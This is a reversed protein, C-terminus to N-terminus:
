SRGGSTTAQALLRWVYEPTLPLRNIEVGFEALADCIGNAVAAAPPITGIEGVGRVGFTTMPSPVQTHMLEIPPMDAATPMFYDLMTGNLLQGTDPDYRLEETLAAGFGQALAGHVQGQVVMPNVPTGCDHVMVFREITFDGTEPDVSVIAAASGFAFAAEQPEFHATAELGPEMDAPLGQGTIARTHVDALTAFRGPDSRVYVRRGALELEAPDAVELAHAAIALTKGRLELSAQRLAGAAAIMTRSAFGGTNLPTAGTDGAHVRVADYEIGLVEVCVQAFATESSQGFSSVGTYLDIGGSRNARLIVSEHAGYKSGRGALFRASAYGTREVFSTVGVGVYRGDARPGRGERRREDYGIADCAMQLCRRYDGSDLLGGGPNRWPLQEPELMNQMRLEVPDRGLRRALRDILLERVFNSEPQGYGRYAGIPTKSTLTVRRETSADPVHYPGTFTISTLQASGFPSNYAGLDTRYVDTMAIIRGDATAGIRVDHVSERAHTSARFHEIRDEVWKVPRRTDIAHLCALVDEPYIGLKLGFGGGVDGTIVRVDSEDLRLIEALQKRILHPTQTSHHVLLERAGPRWAAVLARTEMPLATVRNVEFRDAVVVDAEALRAEPDGAGSPNTTLLNSDLVGDYLVPTGADTASLVDGVHPLPEYDIEMLDLADEAVARSTAVVSVVPQGEFVAETAAMAYFPLQPAGPVPRLVTLPTTRRVVEAGVLVQEVGDILLAAGIEVAAVRARPFPCRGVAMHLAHAPDIDATFRGEGRLLRDDEKRTLSAGVGEARGTRERELVDSM